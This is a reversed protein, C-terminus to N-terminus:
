FDGVSLRSDLFAKAGDSMALDPVPQRLYTALDRSIREIPHPRVFSTLGVGRQVAEMVDLACRETVMRTLNAFAVVNISGPEDTSLRRAAEEVWQRATKASAICQALREQQYPDGGRGRAVLHDRFLDVLREIAGTHAACFRWAGGSFHPQRMFDGAVGVVNNSSIVTGSLDIAGTATSRMGQATWGSLDVKQDTLHLLCMIQSGEAVATVIPDTVFGAGSALIKRGRLVRPNGDIVHLGEADDAGWVASLGGNAVHGSLAQMQDRHGYRALLSVANVHGEYIRAVSLDASGLLRLITCLENHLAPDCLGAGGFEKPFPSM